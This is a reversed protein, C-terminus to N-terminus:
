EGESTTTNAAPLDKRWAGDEASRAFALMTVPLEEDIRTPGGVISVSRCSRGMSLLAEVLISPSDESSEIALHVPTTKVTERWSGNGCRCLLGWRLLLCAEDVVM